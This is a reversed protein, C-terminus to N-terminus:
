QFLELIVAKFKEGGPNTDERILAHHTIITYKMNKFRSNGIKFSM